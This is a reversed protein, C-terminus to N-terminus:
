SLGETYVSKGDVLKATLVSYRKKLPNYSCHVWGSNTNGHTYFELILQDFTLHKVIWEALEKNDIGPIEFDAAEGTMHQSFRSGKTAENVAPSRYGSNVIVPLKYHDRVPQLIKEALFQLNSIVVQYPANDLGLRTAIESKVLESLYFNATLKM